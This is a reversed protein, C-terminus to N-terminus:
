PSASGAQLQTLARDCAARQAALEGPRGADISTLGGDKGLRTYIAESEQYWRRADTWDQIRQAAPAVPDAGARACADGLKEECLAIDRAYIANSPDAAALQQFIALGQRAEALAPRPQGISTLSEAVDTHAVALDFRAQANQPDNRAFQQRIAFAQRRSALAGQLDGGALLSNGLQYYGWGVTRRASADDPDAASLAELITVGRRIGASTEPRHPDALGGIKLLNLAISRRLKPTPPTKRSSSKACGFPRRCIRSAFRM